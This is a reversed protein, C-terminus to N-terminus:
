SFVPVGGGGFCLCRCTQYNWCGFLAVSSAMGDLVSSASGVGDPVLMGRVIRRLWSGSLLVVPDLAARVIGLGSDGMRSTFEVSVCTKGGVFLLWDFGSTNLAM